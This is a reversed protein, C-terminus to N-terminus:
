SYNKRQNEIWSNFRELKEVHISVDIEEGWLADCLKNESLSADGVLNCRM